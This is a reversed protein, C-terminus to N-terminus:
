FNRNKEKYRRAIEDETNQMKEKFLRYFLDPIMFGSERSTYIYRQIEILNWKDIKFKPNLLQLNLPRLGEKLNENQLSRM